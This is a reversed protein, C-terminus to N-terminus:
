LIVLETVTVGVSVTVVISVEYEVIVEIVLTEAM